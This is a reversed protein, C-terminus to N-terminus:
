LHTVINAFVFFSTTTPYLLLLGMSLNSWLEGYITCGWCSMWNNQDEIERVPCPPGPYRVWILFILFDIFVRPVSNAQTLYEFDTEKQYNCCKWGWWVSLLLHATQFGKRSLVGSSGTSVSTTEGAPRERILVIRRMKGGTKFLAILFIIYQFLFGRAIWSHFGERRISIHRSRIVNM